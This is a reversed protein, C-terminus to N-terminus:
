DEVEGRLWVEAEDYSGRRDIEGVAVRRSMLVRLANQTAHLNQATPFRKSLAHASAYEVEADHLRIRKQDDTM